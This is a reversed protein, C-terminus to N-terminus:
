EFPKLLGRRYATVVAELRSHVDLGRLLGRIHNRATDDSVGLRSAIESTSSGEGLLRLVEHQRATLDPAWGVKDAGIERATLSPIAVGFVGVITQEAHLAVSCSRVPVRRGDRGILTLDYDTASTDGILKRAFQGRALHAQEPAVSWVFKRGVVDGVLSSMALNIWRYAGDPGLIYSPLRFDELARELNAELSQLAENLGAV